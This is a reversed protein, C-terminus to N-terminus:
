INKLVKATINQKGRNNNTEKIYTGKCNNNPSNVVVSIFFKYLMQHYLKLGVYM